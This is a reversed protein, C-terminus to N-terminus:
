VGSRNFDAKAVRDGALAMEFERQSSVCSLSTDRTQISTHVIEPRYAFM